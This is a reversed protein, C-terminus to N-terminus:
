VAHNGTTLLARTAEWGEVAPDLTALDAPGRVRRWPATVALDAPRPAVARIAAPVASDLDVEPLWEPAPLRAALGLLGPGAGEVPAVAVPRTTLPRLLKGVTLGPLDPADAAIVAAQDYGDLAALVAGVSPTPVEVVPTGPWVVADALRRDAPTVAVATEVEQLTALLDVVDEALARRWDAPDIGPPSWAVPALLAVVVRRTM